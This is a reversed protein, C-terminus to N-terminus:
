SLSILASFLETTTSPCGCFSGFPFLEELLLVDLKLETVICLDSLLCSSSISIENGLSGTGSTEGALELVDFSISISAKESPHMLFLNTILNTLAIPLLFEQM